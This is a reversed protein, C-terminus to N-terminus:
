ATEDQARVKSVIRAIARALLEPHQDPLLHGGDPVVTLPLGLERALERAASVPIRPDHAGAFVQGQLPRGPLRDALDAPRWDALIRMLTRARGRDAYPDAYANRLEDSVRFAPGGARRLILRGLPRHLPAFVSATASRLSASRLAVLALPRRIEASVPSALVLGRIRPATRAYALGIAAGHSHGVLFRPADCGTQPGLSDVVSALRTVEDDLSYSIEARADSAGRGFLDPLWCQLGAGGSALAEAVRLWSRGHASVGHL